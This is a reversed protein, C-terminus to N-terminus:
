MGGARPVHFWSSRTVVILMRLLLGIDRMADITSSPLISSAQAARCPTCTGDSTELLKEARGVVKSGQLLAGPPLLEVTRQLLQNRQNLNTGGLDLSIFLAPHTEGREDVFRLSQEGICRRGSLLNLIGNTLIQDFRGISQRAAIERNGSRKRM